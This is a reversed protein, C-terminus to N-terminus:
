AVRNAPQVGRVKEADHLDGTTVTCDEDQGSAPMCWQLTGTDELEQKARVLTEIGDDIERMFKAVAGSDSELTLTGPWSDVLRLLKERISLNAYPETMYAPLKNGRDRVHKCHASCAHVQDNCHFMAAQKSTTWLSAAVPLDSM